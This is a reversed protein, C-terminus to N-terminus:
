GIGVVRRPEKWAIVVTRPTVERTRPTVEEPTDRIRVLFLRLESDDEELSQELMADIEESADEDAIEAYQDILVDLPPTFDEFRVVVIPPDPSVYDDALEYGPMDRDLINQVEQREEGLLERRSFNLEVPDGPEPTGVQATRAQATRSGWAHRGVWALALPLGSRRSM